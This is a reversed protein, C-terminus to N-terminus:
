IIEQLFQNVSDDNLEEVILEEYEKFNEEIALFDKQNFGFSKAIREAATCGFEHASALIIAFDEALDERVLSSLFKINEQRQRKMQNLINEEYLQDYAMQDYYNLM